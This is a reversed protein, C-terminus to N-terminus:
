QLSHNKRSLFHLTVPPVIFGQQKIIVLSEVRRSVHLDRNIGPVLRISVCVCVRVCMLCTSHYSVLGKRGGENGSRWDYDQVQLGRSNRVNHNPLSALNTKIFQGKDLLLCVEEPM